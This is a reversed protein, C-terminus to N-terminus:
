FLNSGTTLLVSPFEVTFLATLAKLKGKEQRVINEATEAKRCAVVLPINNIKQYSM